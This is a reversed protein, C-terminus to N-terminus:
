KDSKHSSRVKISDEGVQEDCLGGGNLFADFGLVSGAPADTAVRAVITFKLRRSGKAATFLGGVDEWTVSDAATDIIAVPKDHVPAGKVYAKKVTLYRSLNVRLAVDNGVTDGDKVPVLTLRYRVIQGPKAGRKAGPTLKVVSPKIYDSLDVPQCM